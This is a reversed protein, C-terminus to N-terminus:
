YNAYKCFAEWMYAVNQPPVDAQICHIPAFVYGGGPALDQIHMEVQDFIDQKTAKQFIWPDVAGGWFVLDNGYAKKLKKTNMGKANVQVPNVMDIGEDLLQPIMDYIAGCTHYNIYIKKNYLSKIYSFLRRHYTEVIETYLDKSCLLGNQGAVDDAESVLVIEDDVQALANKWFDMRLQTSKEMLAHIFEKELIMNEYVSQFGGLWLVTEWVGGYPRELCYARNENFSIQHAKEHINRYITPDNMDPWPYKEVDSVDTLDKFPNYTMDYYWGGEIPKSWKVGYIDTITSYKEGYEIPSSLGQEKPPDSAIIRVDIGLKEVMDAEVVATQQTLSAIRTEKKPLGLVDRLGEYCRIAIGSCDIGGMDCPVRDAEKHMVAQLVREKSNMQEFEEMNLPFLSIGKEGNNFIM